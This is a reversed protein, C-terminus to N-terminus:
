PRDQLSLSVSLLINSSPSHFSSHVIVCLSVSGSYLALTKSHEGEVSEKGGGDM